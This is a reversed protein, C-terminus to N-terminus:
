PMHASLRRATELLQQALAQDDPAGALLRELQRLRQHELTSADEALTLDGDLATKAWHIRRLM